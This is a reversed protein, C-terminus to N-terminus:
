QPYHLYVCVHARASSGRIACCPIGMTALHSSSQVLSARNMRVTFWCLLFGHMLLRQDLPRSIEHASNPGSAFVEAAVRAEERLVHSKVWKWLKVFVGAWAM